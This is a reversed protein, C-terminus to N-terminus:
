EWLTLCTACKRDSVMGLWKQAHQLLILQTSRRHVAFIYSAITIAIHNNIKARQAHSINITNMIDLRANLQKTKMM